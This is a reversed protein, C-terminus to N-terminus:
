IAWGNIGCVVSDNDNESVVTAHDLETKGELLFLNVIKKAKMVLLIGKYAKM